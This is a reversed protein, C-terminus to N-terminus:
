FLICLFKQKQISKKSVKNKQVLRRPIAVSAPEFFDPGCKKALNKKAQSPFM